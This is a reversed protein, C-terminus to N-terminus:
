KNCADLARLYAKHLTFAFTLGRLGRVICLQYVVENLEWLPALPNIVIHLKYCHVFFLRNKASGEVLYWKRNAGRKTTRSSKRKVVRKTKTTNRQKNMCNAKQRSSRAKTYSRSFSVPIEVIFRYWPSTACCCCNFKRLEKSVLAQNIIGFLKFINFTRQYLLFM